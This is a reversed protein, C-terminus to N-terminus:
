LLNIFYIAVLIIYSKFPHSFLLWLYNPNYKIFSRCQFNWNSHLTTVYQLNSASECLETSLKYLFVARFLWVFWGLLEVSILFITYYWLIWNKGFCALQIAWKVANCDQSYPQYRSKEQQYSYSKKLCCTLGQFKLCPSYGTTTILPFHLGKNM